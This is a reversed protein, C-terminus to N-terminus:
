TSDNLTDEIILFFKKRDLIEIENEDDWITANFVNPYVAWETYVKGVTLRPHPNICKYKVM